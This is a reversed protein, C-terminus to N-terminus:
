YMFLIGTDFAAVTAQLQALHLTSRHGYETRADLETIYLYAPEISRLREHAQGRPSSALHRFSLSRLYTDVSVVNKRLTFCGDKKVYGM